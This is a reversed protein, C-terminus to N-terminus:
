LLVGAAITAVASLVTATAAAKEHDSSEARWTSGCREVAATAASLGVIFNRITLRHVTSM